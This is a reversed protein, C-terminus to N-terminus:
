NVPIYRNPDTPDERPVIWAKGRPVDKMSVIPIGEIFGIAKLDHDWEEADPSHSVSHAMLEQKLDRKEEPSVCIAAPRKGRAKLDQILLRLGEFTIQLKVIEWLAAGHGFVVLNM